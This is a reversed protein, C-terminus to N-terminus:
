QVLVARYFRQPYNTVQNDTFEWVGTLGLTNTAVSEWLGFPLDAASQLVYTAEYAGSIRLTVEGAPGPVASIVPMTNGPPVVTIYVSQYNTGGFGDSIACVFLDNVFNPNSYFLTPVTNTVVVNNTSVSIDAISLTDGDPDSWNTALDAVQINLDTGAVLTYFASGVAPPHNTVVQAFEGSAPLYSGDGSYVAAVANTGRPLTALNTSGASGAILPEVDFVTGNTLFQITGTANAPAITVTFTLSDKFGSPNESSVLGLSPVADITLVAAASNTSGGSAILIVSYDGAAGATLNSLVLTANTRGPLPASDFLWQYTLPTCATALVSFSASGGTRGAQNQPETLVVPPTKDQIIIQNTSYVTNGSADAASLVVVNTGLALVSNTAVSQTITVTGSVDSALIFNTGTVDPMVAVCNANAALVLNTFSWLITPPTTDRIIVTRTVDGTNGSGDIATYTLTNTSIASSNVAGSVNVSVTGACIDYATAGPETYAGGLEVYFPDTGNLTIVPALTDQVILPVSSTASGYLNTVVVGVTHSPLHVNTLLLTANTAGAIASGDLNWQYRLPATGIASVNFGANSGCQITVGAPPATVAAPLLVTLTAVSSTAAGYLNSVRLTYNGGNNTTVSAISLVNSTAGTIHGDNTVNTGNQRWQYSLPSAGTVTASFLADGGALVSQNTPQASILPPYVVTLVAVGSTVAGYNNTVMVSYDGANGSTVSVLTLTSSTTGSVNGGEPLNTSNFRWQYILPAQGGARASIAVDAGNTVTQSSPQSILYPLTPPALADILNTGNPTGLGTALDYNTVAYYLGATHSGINNGTTIDHFCATYDPGAAISYLAPNLFGVPGSGSATAQQNVLATFGAWLPAACSTGGFIGSSGNNYVVEVADAALAVDPINRNVTSGSNAAMSVSAQWTPISYNPSVGGGSGTNNGWNWVTESAWSAGSGNMTLSTGGVSTVYISDVPIPGRSSSLAESGTYADSDGSAEFFSQGQAVMQSLVADLTYTGPGHAWNYSPGKSFAWSCSIQKATNDTAIQNFVSYPNSGEYVMVKALGPALAIILEIDLSVEAVANAIGSYGPTGSVNNLLVNQLPVNAYGCNAEYAAIDNPYYGDFEAVAAVQGSGTLPTGPVYANRFDRGQYSGGPGTGNYNLPVQRTPPLLHLLPRPRAYDSLGWIDRAPVNTPVTPEVDPAFFVRGETPDRYTQLSVQFAQEISAVSGKVDLVVRNPHRSVVALGNREAFQVVAEYQAATPGFHETFEASTLFRHFNTSAPDYLQSLLEELVAQNRLPLGIALSLLNTSPLEGMATLRAVM